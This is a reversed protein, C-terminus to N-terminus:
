RAIFVLVTSTSATDVQYAYCGAHQLRTFGPFDRWGGAVRSDTPRPAPVLLEPAPTLTGGFRVDGPGDLEHGRVLVEGNVDPAVAWLVKNGGWRSGAFAGGPAQAPSGAPAPAVYRLVGDLLGVPRAPGSGLMVGLGPTPESHATTVPCAAGRVVKPLRLSRRLAAGPQAKTETTTSSIPRSEAGSGPGSCAAAFLVTFLAVAPRAQAM